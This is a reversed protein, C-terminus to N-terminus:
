FLFPVIKSFSFLFVSVSFLVFLIRMIRYGARPKPQEVHLVTSKSPRLYRIEKIARAVVPSTIKPMSDIAGLSFVRNCLLNTVRPIGESFKLIRDVADPTLVKSMDRGVLKLRLEVYRRGEDRTLAKIECQTGARRRLPLSKESSLKRKLEPHGVLVIQLCRLAPSDEALLRFFGELVEKDLSQAEDVVIAVAEERDLREHLYNRFATILSSTNEEKCVVGLDRLVNKLVGRFDLRTNFVFATKVKEDLDKLLAHILLTKGIGVEGTVVILGKKERIGQMMCSLAKVHGPALYLFRPDPDLTFPDESFGYFNKAM